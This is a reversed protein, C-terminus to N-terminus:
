PRPVPSDLVELMEKADADGNKAAERFWKAAEATDKKVGRGNYYCIGLNYQAEAHGQEAAKRYWAATESVDKWVGDGIYYCEGLRYQADADGQEAAARLSVIDAKEEASGKPAPDKQPLCCAAFLIGAAIAACVPVFLISRHKM